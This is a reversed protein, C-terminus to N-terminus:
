AAVTAEAAAFLLKAAEEAPVPWARQGVAVRAACHVGDAALPDCVGDLDVVEADGRVVRQQRRQALLFARQALARHAQAAHEQARADAADVRLLM